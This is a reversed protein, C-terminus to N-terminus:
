AHPSFRGHNRSQRFKSSELFFASEKQNEPKYYFHDCSCHNRSLVTKGRKVPGRKVPERALGTSLPSSLRADGLHGEKLRDRPIAAKKFRNESFLGERFPFVSRELGLVACASVFCM